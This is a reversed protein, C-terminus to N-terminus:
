GTDEDEDPPKVEDISIWGERIAYLVAETRTDVNLKAFINALHTQVTRVSIGLEQSIDKNSGGQAVVKLVEVEREKLMLIKGAKEGREIESLMRSVGNKELVVKGAHLSRIASVLEHLDTKKLLCGEIGARLSALLLTGSVTSSVVLIAADPCVAKIQGMIEVTGPQSISIGIVVVDPSLEEALRRAEEYESSRAVVELDDEAELIRCLGEQYVPEDDIVLVRIKGV